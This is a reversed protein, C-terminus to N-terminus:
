LTMFKKFAFGSPQKCVVTFRVHFRYIEVSESVSHSVMVAASVGGARLGWGM